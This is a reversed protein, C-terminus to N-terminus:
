IPAAEYSKPNIKCAKEYAAFAKDYEGRGFFGEGERLNKEFEQNGGFNDEDGGDPSLQDLFSLALVNETGLKKAKALVSYGKIREAKREEAAALITSRTLIAIGYHAWVEGDEPFMPAAKELLPFADIYRNQKVFDLAKSRVANKEPQSSEQAFIRVGSGSSIILCFGLLFISVTLYMKQM